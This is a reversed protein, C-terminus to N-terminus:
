NQSVRIRTATVEVHVGKLSRLFAIFADIDDTSFVGSIELSRLTPSTIEIPKSSYRNFERAVSELPEHDFSIQRHLWATSRQADVARPTAPWEGDAVTIQQNAELQVAPFRGGRGGAAGRNAQMPSLGVQVRGEIVTVITSDLEPTSGDRGTSDHRLRVDFRTGLDVVEASGALVRFPRELDHTIEFAVEGSTLEVLRQQGSVRVTVASDTNLHLVSGDALRHTQQEGHRTEFHLASVQPRPAVRLPSRMSWFLFAGVGVLALTAFGVAAPQWQRAGVKGVAASFRSWFPEVASAEELRARALLEELSSHATESAKRLDGAIVSLALYEEVHLPSAKLWTIFTERQATTLGARNATFWDAAQQTILNRVRDDNASM